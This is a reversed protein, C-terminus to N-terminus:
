RKVFSESFKQGNTTHIIVFYLGKEFSSVDIQNMASTSEYVVAGTTTIISVSAADILEVNQISIVDTTPNPFVTIKQGEIEVLSLPSSGEVVTIPENITPHIINDIHGSPWKIFISDIETATGIGFHANLTNMYRFGEGSRVDRIQKGWDGYIEVRAGIGNGNSQVGQLHIKIWNNDNGDNYFVTNGNKVDIFGDNNLDGFSGSTFSYDVPSFTLDGNNFMIKNGGGMVDAFGDNDFDYSMHEISLSTNVDWGSGSTIDSFTEDGNNRMLKHSGDSTSSAGVLVDMWGDNDYDNWASSWTQVPDYLNSAVSVNTFVGNGENRYLENYKATAGQGGGSCKSMFMDVLGDNNYDTWLSAYHGGVPVDGLGGTGYVLNGNGDNIYYVTPAVDHCVFADLHGDNNIDIFNTRQSFVYEPGSIETFSTGTSNAKMFTVGSGSGYVLDNFGNKDIDGIAMSWSPLYNADSTTINTEVFTGNSQQYLIQVNTASVTIMDDLFDGNMDAVAIGYSGSIENYTTPTFTVPTPAPEVFPNETLEFDFGDNDWRNDFVITYEVGAIANFTAFSLFSSPIDDSGAYCVLAGCNGTYVHFRTDDGANQALDTSLDVTYNQSPTYKYWEGATQGVGNDACILTPATGDFGIVTHTGASIALATGCSNQAFAAIPLGIICTLYFKLKM